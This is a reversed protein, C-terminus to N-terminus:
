HQWIILLILVFFFFRRSLFTAMDFHQQAQQRMIRENSAQIEDVILRAAREARIDSDVDNRWHQYREAERIRALQKSKRDRAILCRREYARKQIYQKQKKSM